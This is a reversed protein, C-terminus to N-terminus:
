LWCRVLFPGIRWLRLRCICVGVHRNVLALVIPPNNNTHLAGSPSLIRGIHGCVSDIWHSRNSQCDYVQLSYTNPIACHRLSYMETRKNDEGATRKLIKTIVMMVAGTLQREQALLMSMGLAIILGLVVVIVYGVVRLLPPQVVAEVDSSRDSAM